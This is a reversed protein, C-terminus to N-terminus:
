RTKKGDRLVKIFTLLLLLYGTLQVFEAAVYLLKHLKVFVFIIQSLTIIWFSTMLMKASSTRTRCYNQTYYWSIAGLLFLSTVHFVYYASHSFYTSFILLFCILIKTPVSQKDDYILYLMYLGFLTLVRYLLFGIYPIMDYTKVIEYTYVLFGVQKTQTVTHYITLNTLSKFIFALALLFFSIYLFRYNKKNSLIYCKRAFLAIFGLVIVSFIDILIDKDYFWYPSFILDFM